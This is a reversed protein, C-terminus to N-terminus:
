NEESEIEIEDKSIKKIRCDCRYFSHGVDAITIDTLHEKIWWSIYSLNYSSFSGKLRIKM